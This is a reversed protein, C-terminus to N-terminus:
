SLSFTEYGQRLPVLFTSALVTMKKCVRLPKYEYIYEFRKLLLKLEQVLDHINIVRLTFYSEM